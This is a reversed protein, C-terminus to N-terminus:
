NAEAILYMFELQTGDDKVPANYAICYTYNGSYVQVEEGNKIRSFFEDSNIIPYIDEIYIRFTQEVASKECDPNWQYSLNFHTNDLDDYELASIAILSDYISEKIKDDDDSLDMYTTMFREITLDDKRITLDGALTSVYYCDGQDLVLYFPLMSLDYDLSNESIFETLRQMYLETFEFAGRRETQALGTACTFVIIIMIIVAIRKKM